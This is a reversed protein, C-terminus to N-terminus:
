NSKSKDEKKDQEIKKIKDKQDETLDNPKVVGTIKGDGHKIFM